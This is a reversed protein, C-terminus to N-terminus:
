AMPPKKRQEGGRSWPRVKPFAPGGRAHPFNEHSFPNQMSLPSGTQNSPLNTKSFLFIACATLFTEERGRCGAKSMQSNSHLALFASLWPSGHVSAARPYRKLLQVGAQKGAGVGAKASTTAEAYVPHMEDLREYETNLESVMTATPSKHLFSLYIILGAM